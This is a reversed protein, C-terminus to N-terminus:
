GKKIKKLVSLKTKSGIEKIVALVLQEYPVGWADYEKSLHIADFQCRTTCLGCGICIQPDVIAAGCGCM